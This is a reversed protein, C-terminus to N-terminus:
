IVNSLIFCYIEFVYFFEINIRFTRLDAPIRYKCGPFNYAFCITPINCNATIIATDCCHHKINMM